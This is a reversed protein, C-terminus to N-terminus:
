NLPLLVFRRRRHGSCRGRVGARSMKICVAISNRPVDLPERSVKELELSGTVTASGLAYADVEVDLVHRFCDICKDQVWYKCGCNCRDAGELAIKNDHNTTM